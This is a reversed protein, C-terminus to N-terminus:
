GTVSNRHIRNMKRKMRQFHLKNLYGEVVMMVVVVEGLNKTTIKKIVYSRKELSAHYTVTIEKTKLCTQHNVLLLALDRVLLTVGPHAVSDRLDEFDFKM